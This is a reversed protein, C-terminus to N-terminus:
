LMGVGGSISKRDTTDTAWDADSYVVLDVSEKPNLCLRYDSTSRLYRMLRKLARGHKEAPEKMYQSLRGLAFAIDARTYVMAFMLSGIIMSYETPDIRLGDDSAPSLDEYGEIPMSAPRYRANPFGFKTLIRELYQQQDLWLTRDKRNRVIKMGLFMDMEGLNKTKFCRNIQKFLWNSQESSKAAVAIDDVYVLLKVNNTQNTFLCPDALSQIFGWELFKKKLLQNWDRAAGEPARLFPAANPSAETFANKIDFHFLGLDEVACIALFARFTAIQVTPAFTEKYDTGFRQTFGRAVLRAKFRDLSGDPKLKVTFVWKTSILNADAPAVIGEWIQNMTLARIEEEIAEKWMKGYIPDNIAQKYSRPVPVDECVLAASVLAKTLFANDINMDDENDSLDLIALMTKLLKASRYETDDDDGDDLKRKRNPNQQGHSGLILPYQEILNRDNEDSMTIDELERQIPILWKESDQNNDDNEHNMVNCTNKLKKAKQQLRRSRRLNIVERNQKGQIPNTSTSSITLDQQCNSEENNDNNQDHLDTNKIYNNNNPEYNEQDNFESIKDKIDNLDLGESDPQFVNVADLPLVNSNSFSISGDEKLKGTKKLEDVIQSPNNEIDKPQSSTETSSFNQTIKVNDNTESISPVRARIGVGVGAGVKTSNFPKSINSPRGIKKRIAPSSNSQEESFELGSKRWLKLDIITSGKVNEKFKTYSSVVTSHLDPAYVRYQSQTDTYGM